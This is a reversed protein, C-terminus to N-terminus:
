AASTTTDQPINASSSGPRQVHVTFLVAAAESLHVLDKRRPFSTTTVKLFADIDDDEFDMM